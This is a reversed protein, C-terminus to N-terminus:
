TLPTLTIITDKLGVYGKRSTSLSTYHHPIPKLHICSPLMFLVTPLEGFSSFACFQVRPSWFSCLGQWINSRQLHLCISTNNQNTIVQWLLLRFRISATQSFHTTMLGQICAETAAFVQQKWFVWTQTGTGLHHSSNWPMWCPIGTTCIHVYLCFWKYLTFSFLYKFWFLLFREM